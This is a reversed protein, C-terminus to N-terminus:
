LVSSSRYQGEFVAFLHGTLQDLDFSAGRKTEIIIHFSQQRLVGDSIRGSPSSEQQTISAGVSLDELHSLEPLTEQFLHFDHHQLRSLLLLTNNTVFDERKSFRQFYHVDKVFLSRQGLARSEGEGEVV